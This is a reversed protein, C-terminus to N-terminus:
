TNIRCSREPGRETESKCLGRAIVRISGTREKSTCLRANRPHTYNNHRSRGASLRCHWRSSVPWQKWRAPELAFCSAWCCWCCELEHQQGGRQLLCFYYHFNTLAWGILLIKVAWPAYLLLFLSLMSCCLIFSLLSHMCKSGLACARV